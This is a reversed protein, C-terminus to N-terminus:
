IRKAGPTKPGQRKEVKGCTSQRQWHLAEQEASAVEMPPRGEEDAIGPGKRNLSPRSVASAAPIEVFVPQVADIAM